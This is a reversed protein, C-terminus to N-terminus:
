PDQGLIDESEPMAVMQAVGQALADEESASCDAAQQWLRESYQYLSAMKGRLIVRRIQVEDRSFGYLQDARMVSLLWAVHPALVQMKERLFWHEEASKTELNWNTDVHIVLFLQYMPELIQCSIDAMLPRNSYEIIQAM